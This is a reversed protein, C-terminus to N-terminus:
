DLDILRIKAHWAGDGRKPPKNWDIRNEILDESEWMNLKLNIPIVGLFEVMMRFVLVDKFQNLEADRAIEWEVPLHYDVFDKEEDCPEIGKVGFISRTVGEGVAIKAKRCDIVESATALFEREILLSTAPDKDM